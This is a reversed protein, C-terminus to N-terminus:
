QVALQRGFAPTSPPMRDNEVKDFPPPGDPLKAGGITFTQVDKTQRNASTSPAM